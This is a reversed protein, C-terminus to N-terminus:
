YEVDDMFPLPDAVKFDCATAARVDDVTIGPAIEILTLGTGGVKDCDFVCMDTIIRDVVNHGTLPLSCSELIKPTGDKATHDMTVVVKSGPACVVKMESFRFLFIQNSKQYQLNTYPCM